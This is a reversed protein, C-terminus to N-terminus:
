ASGPASKPSSAAPQSLKGQHLLEVIARNLRARVEYREPARTIFRVAVNVGTGTPRISLSPAGSPSPVGRSPASRSWEQEALRVNEATERTVIQQIAEAAAQLNITEPIQVEIEDWLWQGSTSFNFFHDTIAFSNGFSVKRGTPHGPDTWNGTELLVTHLPGVSVVEGSVGNIEVRDGPRIGDKGMLVFWGLFGIIFNGLAVTLGATVLAIVTPLNGPMGFIVFLVLLLSLAQVTFLILTRISHMQRHEAAFGAFLRQVWSNAVVSALVILLIWFLSRFFQHVFAQQRAGVFTMWTGYVSALQQETRIRSGFEALVSRDETIHRLFDLSSSAGTEGPATGAGGAASGEAPRPHLIKKAAQEEDVEQQLQARAASLQEARALAEERAQRLQTEKSHLSAWARTEALISDSHTREISSSSAAANPHYSAISAEAAKHQDLLQQIRGQKNGGARILAQSADSLDDQDLSLQAQAIGILQSVAVKAAPSALTLARQFQTIRNQDAAVAAQAAEIKASLRQTEPTVPAPNETAERMAAAFALDVSHDALRLAEQAYEQETSTVALAALQQASDLPRTDVSAASGHSASRLKHLRERYNSLDRTLVAAGLAILVLAILGGLVKKERNTM